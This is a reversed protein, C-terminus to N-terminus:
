WSTCCQGGAPYYPGDAYDIESGFCVRCNILGVTASETLSDACGQDGFTYSGCVYFCIAGDYGGRLALLDVTKMMKEPNIQLKGLKKM